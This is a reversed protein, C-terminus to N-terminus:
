RSSLIVGEFVGMITELVASEPVPDRRCAIISALAVGPSSMMLKLMVPVMVSLERFLVTLAESGVMKFAFAVAEPVPVPVPVVTPVRVMLPGPEEERIILPKSPPLVLRLKLMKEMSEPPSRLMEPTVTEPAFVEPLPPAKLLEPVRVTVLEVIEPLVADLPPPMQFSVPPVTVTVLESSEALIAFSPLEAVWFPPPPMRFSPARVIKFEVREPLVAYPPPPIEFPLLRVIELEVKKPLEAVKPPPISLKKPVKEKFLEVRDPFEAVKPPPAM